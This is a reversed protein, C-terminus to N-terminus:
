PQSSAEALLENMRRMLVDLRDAMAMYTAAGPATRLREADIEGQMLVGEEPRCCSAIAAQILEERRRAFQEPAERALAAMHDFNFDSAQTM